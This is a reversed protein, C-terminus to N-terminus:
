GRRILPQSTGHRARLAKNTKTGNRSARDAVANDIFTILQLNGQDDREEKQSVVSSTNNYVVNNVTLGGGDGGGRAGRPIVMEGKQAIIPREDGVIGGSHMRPVNMLKMASLPKVLGGTYYLGGGGSRIADAAQPSIDRMRDYDKQTYKYDAGKPKKPAKPFYNKSSYKSKAAKPPVTKAPKKTSVPKVTIDPM